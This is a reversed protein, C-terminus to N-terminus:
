GVSGSRDCSNKELAEVKRRCPVKISTNLRQSNLVFNSCFICLSGQEAVEINPLFSFNSERCKKKTLLFSRQEAQSSILCNVQSADGNELCFLSPFQQLEGQDERGRPFPPICLGNGGHPFFISLLCFLTPSFFFSSFFFFSSPSKQGEERGRAYAFLCAFSPLFRFHM